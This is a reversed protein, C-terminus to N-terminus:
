EDEAETVNDGSVVYEVRGSRWEEKIEAPRIGRLKSRPLENM